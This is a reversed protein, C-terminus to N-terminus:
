SWLHRGNGSQRGSMLDRPRGVLQYEGRCRGAPPSPPSPALRQHEFYYEQWSALFMHGELALSKGTGFAIYEAWTRSRFSRLQVYGLEPSTVHGAVWTGCTRLPRHTVPRLRSATATPHRPTPPRLPCQGPGPWMATNVDRGEHTPHCVARGPFPFLPPPPQRRPGSSSGVLKGRITSPM